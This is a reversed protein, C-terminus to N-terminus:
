KSNRKLLDNLLQRSEEVKSAEDDSSKLIKIALRSGEVAGAPLDNSSISIEQGDDLRVVAFDGEFRDITAEIPM